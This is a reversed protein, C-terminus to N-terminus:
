LRIPALAKRDLLNWEKDEKNKPNVGKLPLYLDKQYLLGGDEDEM